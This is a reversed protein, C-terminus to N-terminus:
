DAGAFSWEWALVFQGAQLNYGEEIKLNPGLHQAAGLLVETGTAGSGSALAQGGFTGPQGHRAGGGTASVVEGEVSFRSSLPWEGALSYEVSDKLRRDGSYTYLVNFDLDMFVLDKGAILGLAYDTKGTGINRNSATPLKVLTELSLAPRYRREPLFEYELSVETDDVGRASSVGALKSSFNVYNPELVLKLQESFNYEFLLPFDYETGDADKAYEFGSGITAPFQWTDSATPRTKLIKAQAAPTAALLLAAIWV